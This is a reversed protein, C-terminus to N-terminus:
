LWEISFFLLTHLQKNAISHNSLQFCISLVFKEKSNKISRRLYNVLLFLLLPLCLHEEFPAVAMSSLNCSPTGCVM